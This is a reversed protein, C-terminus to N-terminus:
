TRPKHFFFAHHRGESSRSRHLTSICWWGFPLASHGEWGLWHMSPMTIRLAEVYLTRPLEVTNLCIPRNESQMRYALGRHHRRSRSQRWRRRRSRKDSNPWSDYVEAENRRRRKSGRERCRATLSYAAGVNRSRFKSPSRHVPEHTIPLSSILLTSLRLTTHGFVWVGVHRHRGQRRLHTSLKLSSVVAQPELFDLWPM